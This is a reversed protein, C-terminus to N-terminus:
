RLRWNLGAWVTQVEHVLPTDGIPSTNIYVVTEDLANTVGIRLDLGKAALDRRTYTLNLLDYDQDDAPASDRPGVHNWHLGLLHNEVPTWLLGLNSMWSPAAGIDVTALAPVNRNHESESASLNADIRLTRSVQQTWELEIGESEAEAVNGFVPPPPGPNIFVMDKLETHFLTVRATVGTNEYVYNLESTANVEFDLPPQAPNSYLEFFTPSRYGEAYQAKLIHHNAVRWALAARPTVRKGTESNDDWRAGLTLEARTGLAIQDQLVLSQVTRSKSAISTAPPPGPPDFLAQDITGDTYEIGALWSQRAWGRWLLDVGARWQTGDFETSSTAIDNSLYQARWHLDAADSLAQEHSVALSGSDEDFIQNPPTGDNDDQDREIGQARFTFGGRSASLVGFSHRDAVETTDTDVPAEGNQQASLNVAVKWDGARGSERLHLGTGERSDAELGVAVGNDQTVINVLGQFAFEGYVVSGPGRVFEIREVQAIPFDLASGNTGASDRNIPVGNLLILINGNNFPFPVGRVTTSSTGRPDRIAQVGPVFPLAEWVTRAGLAAMHEGDLVTVIGPVFDSNMKSKTAVATEESLVALLDSFEAADSDAMALVTEDTARANTALLLALALLAVFPRQASIM